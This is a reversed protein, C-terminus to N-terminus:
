NPAHHNFIQPNIKTGSATRSFKSAIFLPGTLVPGVPGTVEGSLGLQRSQQGHVWAQLDLELLNCM